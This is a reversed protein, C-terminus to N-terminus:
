APSIKKEEKAFFWHELLLTVERVQPGQAPIKIPGLVDKREVSQFKKILSVRNTDYSKLFNDIEPILNIFSNFININEVDDPLNDGDEAMDIYLQATSLNEKEILEKTRSKTALDSSLGEVRKILNNKVGKRKEDLLELKQDLKYYSMHHNKFSSVNLERLDSMFDEREKKIFLVKIYITRNKCFM